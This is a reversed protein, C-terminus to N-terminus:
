TPEHPQSQAALRARCDALQSELDANLRNLADIHQNRETVDVGIGWTAWGPVPFQESLNSWAITRITGDKGTMDWAWNRYDNGREAWDAMMQQRYAVEPYFLEMINPNGIVEEASFGTVRECEHNWAIINGEADFADLMVPMQQLIQRLNEEKQRLAIETQKRDTIDRVSLVVGSITRDAERYPTYVMSLYRHKAIPFDYWFEVQVREGDLARDFHSKCETEFMENGAIEAVSHGIIEEQRKQFRRMYAPNVMQYTYAPDVLAILDPITAFIYEYRRLALEAQKRQDVDIVIGAMRIPRGTADYFAQGRGEVWHISGDRWVVRYEHQYLRQRHIARDLVRDQEARDDPHICDAFTTYKGDFADPALGFIDAHEVSWTIAGSVMDWDWIGIQAAEVTLRLQNQQAQLQAQSLQEIRQRTAHLKSILFIVLLNILVCELVLHWHGGGGTAIPVPPSNILFVSLALTSLAVAFLGANMGGYWAIVASVAEFLVHTEVKLVSFLGHTAITAMAVMVIALAYPNLRISM